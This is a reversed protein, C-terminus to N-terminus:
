LCLVGWPVMLTKNLLHLPWFLVHTGVPYEHFIVVWLVWSTLWWLEGHCRHQTGLLHGPGRQSAAEAWREPQTGERRDWDLGRSPPDWHRGAPRVGQSGESVQPLFLFVSRSIYPTQLICNKGLLTRPQIVCHDTCYKLPVQICHQRSVKQVCYSLIMTNHCSSM